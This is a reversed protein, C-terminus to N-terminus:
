DRRRLAFPLILLASLVGCALMAGLTGITPLLPEALSLGLIPAVSAIGQVAGVLKGRQGEAAYEVALAPMGPALWGMGAGMLLLGAVALPIGPAYALMALGAAMMAFAGGFLLKQGLRTMAKGFTASFVAAVASNLMMLMAVTSTKGLGITDLHFSMFIGPVTLVIGVGLAIGLLGWPLGHHWPTGAAVEKQAATRRPAPLSSPLALLLLPSAVLYLLFPTRWGSLGVYGALPLSALSVLMNGASLMGIVSSRKDGPLYDGAMTLGIAMVSAAAFGMVARTAVIAELSDLFAPAVAFVLYLAGFGILLWRRDFKDALLGALLSGVAMAPGLIGAVLKALYASGPDLALEDAMQALLPLAITYAIVGPLQTFVLLATLRLGSMNSLAVAPADSAVGPPDSGTAQM